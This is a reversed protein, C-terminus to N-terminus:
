TFFIFTFHHLLFTYPIYYLLCLYILIFTIVNYTHIYTHIHTYTHTHIYTHIYTDMFCQIDSETHAVLDCDDAYLDRVLAVLVKTKAAFHRINFPKGSSRYRIYIEQNCDRFADNLVISFFVSFLTPALLDEQQVGTEVKLPDTLTGGVNVSVEMEDHFSRILKVFHDPCGLKGLIKWLTERNVSDFAKTLDVFVQYLGQRQESCKEQIQRATFIRDTAGRNQCFGCQSEPLM